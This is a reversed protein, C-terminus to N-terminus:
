QSHVLPNALAFCWGTWSRNRHHDSQAFGAAFDSDDFHRSLGHRRLSFDRHDAKRTRSASSVEVRRRTLNALFEIASAATL